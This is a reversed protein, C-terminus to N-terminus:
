AAEVTIDGNSTQLDLRAGAPDQPVGIDKTGNDSQASVDYRGAPVTLTIDGNSAVALVDQGSTPALDIRGNSTVARIEDGRVDRGEIQGNSTRASVDGAIGDMRIRGSSTSVRVGGVDTLTISGSSTRGSVPVGTPVAVTYTVSCDQGCGRLVLVGKDVEYTPDGPREGRYELTRHVSAGAKGKAGNVTVGGSENDIRVSRIQDSVDADDSYSEAQLVLGCASLGAAGIATAAIIGVTHFQRRM